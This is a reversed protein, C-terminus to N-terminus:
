GFPAVVVEINVRDDKSINDSDAIEFMALDRAEVENQAVIATLPIVVESTEMNYAAYLYM